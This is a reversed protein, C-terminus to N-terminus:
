VFGHENADSELEVIQTAATRQEQRLQNFGNIIQQQSLPKKGKSDVSAMVVLFRPNVGSKFPFSQWREPGHKVM